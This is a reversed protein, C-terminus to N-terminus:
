IKLIHRETPQQVQKAERRGGAPGKYSACLHGINRRQSGSTMGNQALGTPIHLVLPQERRWRHGDYHALLNVRRHQLSQRQETKSSALYVGNRCIRLSSHLRRLNRLGLTRYDDTRLDPVHIGPSTVRDAFDAFDCVAHAGPYVNIACETEPGGG